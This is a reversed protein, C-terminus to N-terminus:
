IDAAAIDIHYLVHQRVADAYSEGVLVLVEGDDTSMRGIICESLVSDYRIEDLKQEMVESTCYDAMHHDNEKLYEYYELLFGRIFAELTEEHSFYEGEEFYGVSYDVAAMDSQRHATLDPALFVELKYDDYSFTETVPEQETKETYIIEDTESGQNEADISSPIEEDDSHSIQQNNETFRTILEPMISYLMFALAAVLVGSLIKYVM